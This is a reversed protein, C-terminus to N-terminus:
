IKNLSRKYQLADIDQDGASECILIGNKVRNALFVALYKFDPGGIGDKENCHRKEGGKTFEVPSFHIHLNDLIGQGLKQEILNLVAEMASASNLGGLERANLHGFDICPILNDRLKCLEIVEELSGLQNMKGMTEPCLIIDNLGEVKLREIVNVLAEETRKVAEERQFNMTSGSHFIVRTAGMWKAATTSKIFHVQTKEVITKDPNTLSIYYPAHISLVVNNEKARQGLEKAFKESIRVGRSCQYEYANLGIQNLYLPMDVSSKFGQEYFGDPNGGVGFYM